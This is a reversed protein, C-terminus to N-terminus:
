SVLMSDFKKGASGSELLFCRSQFQSCDSNTALFILNEWLTLPLSSDIISQWYNATGSSKNRPPLVKGWYVDIRDDALLFLAPGGIQTGADRYCNLRVELM